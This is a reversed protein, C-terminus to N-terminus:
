FVMVNMEVMLKYIFDKQNLVFKCLFFICIVSGRCNHEFYVWIAFRDSVCYLM